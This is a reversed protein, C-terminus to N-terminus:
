FERHIGIYIRGTLGPGTRRLTIRMGGDREPSDLSNQFNFVGLRGYLTWPKPRILNPTDFRDMSRRGTNFVDFSQFDRYHEDNLSGVAAPSSFNMVVSPMTDTGDFPRPQYMQACSEQAFAFLMAAACPIAFRGIERVRM